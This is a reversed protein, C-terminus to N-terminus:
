LISFLYKRLKLKFSSYSCNYAIKLFISNWLKVGTFAITACSIQRKYKPIELQNYQRTVMQLILNRPIFMKLVLKPLRKFHVRHMFLLVCYHHLSPFPLIKLSQFLPLSPSHPHSNTIIRCCRKQLKLLPDTRFKSAAGWIEICYILYPYILSHYLTRLTSSNLIHKVKNIIGVNKAMKLKIYSTHESWNLKSDLMVGLFLTSYKRELLTDDFFLDPCHTTSQRGPRFLIYHTKSLNISLRNSILWNSLSSLENRMTQFLENMNSGSLFINTDDAYLVKSCRDSFNPLDNIYLIFLLPGLISGQPVGCQITQKKSSHGLYDVTQSRNNLYSSFWQYAIGRIGYHNLKDLLIKHDITDFAKQLDIFVGLVSENSEYASIIENVLYAVASTTNHNERFGFQHDTIIKHKECFSILRNYVLRELIKSISPLVSIPRYNQVVSHSGKKFIPVVRAEKLEMPVVGQEFSLNFIHVLPNLISDLSSQLIKACIGDWGPSSNKLSLIINKVEESTTNRLFISDRTPNALYSLHHRSPSPLNNALDPGVKIYHDNFANSIIRENDTLEDNVNIKSFSANSKSQGIANKILRWTHRMNTKNRNFEDDYYKREEKRLLGRLQRNYLKYRQSNELNPNKKFKAYLLNKMRISIRLGETLWPKRSNYVSKAVKLPFHKEYLMVFASHFLTYALQTDDSRMVDNWDYDNLSECFRRINLDTYARKRSSTSLPSTKITLSPNIAYIPFHDSLDSYFIGTHHDTANSANTFINDILTSSTETVRTPKTILPLFSHSLMTEYFESTLDHQNSKLLDVNFDGLLYALKNERRFKTIIEILHQNSDRLNTAPPRYISGVIIKTPLNTIEIFISEFIDDNVALDNRLRYEHTDKIFVSVGGGLRTDRVVSEHRYGDLHYITQNHKNLWTETLAIVDFKLNLSSLYLDLSSFKAPLSRINAHFLSLHSSSFQCQNFTQDTFYKSINEINGYYNSDPDNERTPNCNLDDDNLEFVNLTQLSLQTSPAPPLSNRPNANSHNDLSTETIIDTDSLNEFPFTFSNDSSTSTISM